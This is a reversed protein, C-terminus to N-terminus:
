FISNVALVILSKLSENLELVNFKYLDKQLLVEYVFINKIYLNYTIVKSEDHQYVENIYTNKLLEYETAKNTKMEYLKDSIEEYLKGLLFKM